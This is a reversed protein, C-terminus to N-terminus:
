AAVSFTKPATTATKATTSINALKMGARRTVVTSGTVANVGRYPHVLGGSGGPFCSTRPQSISSRSMM